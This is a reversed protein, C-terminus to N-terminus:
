CGSSGALFQEGTERKAGRSRGLVRIVFALPSFWGTTPV